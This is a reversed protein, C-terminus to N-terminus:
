KNQLIDRCEYTDSVEKHNSETIRDSLLTEAVGNVASYASESYANKPKYIKSSLHPASSIVFKCSVYEDQRYLQEIQGLHVINSLKQIIECGLSKM